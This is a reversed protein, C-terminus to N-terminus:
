EFDLRNLRSPNLQPEHNAMGHSTYCRQTQKTM